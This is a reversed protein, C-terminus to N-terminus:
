VVSKRDRCARIASDLAERGALAALLVRSEKSSYSTMHRSYGLEFSAGPPQWARVREMLGAACRIDSRRIAQHAQEADFDAMGLRGSFWGFLLVGALIPARYLGRVRFVKPATALGALAGLALYYFFATPLTFASFQLSVFMATYASGLFVGLADGRMKWTLYFGLATTGLSRFLM